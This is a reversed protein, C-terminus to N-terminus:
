PQHFAVLSAWPVSRNHQILRSPESGSEVFNAPDLPEGDYHIEYHLHPGTSFGSNGTWAVLDGKRVIQGPKVWTKNLHAFASNFRYPHRLVLMLGYGGREGASEVIGDATAYIPTNEPVNYDVGEHSRLRRTIPHVRLGFGSTMQMKPLPAGLPLFQRYTLSEAFDGTRGAEAGPYWAARWNSDKDPVTKGVESLIGLEQRKKRIAEEIAKLEDKAKYELRAKEDTAMRYERIVLDRAYQLADIEWVLAGLAMLGIVFLVTHGSALFVLLKGIAPNVAYQRAERSDSITIYLRERMTPM